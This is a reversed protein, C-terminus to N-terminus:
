IGGWGRWEERGSKGKGLCRSPGLKVSQIGANKPTQFNGSIVYHPQNTNVSVKRLGAFILILIHFYNFAKGLLFLQSLSFPQYSFSIHVAPATFGVKLPAGNQWKAM